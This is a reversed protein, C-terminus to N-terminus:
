DRGSRAACLASGAVAAPRHEQAHKNVQPQGISCPKVGNGASRRRRCTSSRPIRGALPADACRRADLRSDELRAVAGELGLEVVANPRGLALDRGVPKGHLEANSVADLLDDAQLVFQIVEFGLWCYRNYLARSSINKTTIIWFIPLFIRRVSIILLSKQKTEFIFCSFFRM